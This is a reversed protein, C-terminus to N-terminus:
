SNRQGACKFLRDSGYIHIALQDLSQAAIADYRFEDAHDILVHGGAVGLLGDLTSEIAISVKAVVARIESQTIVPLVVPVKVWVPPCIMVKRFLVQAPLGVSPEVGELTESFYAARAAARRPLGTACASLRASLRRTAPL